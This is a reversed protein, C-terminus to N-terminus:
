IVQLHLLAFCVKLDITEDFAVPLVKYEKALDIAGAAQWALARRFPFVDCPTDSVKVHTGDIDRCCM